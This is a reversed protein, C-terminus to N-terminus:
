LFHKIIISLALALFSTLFSDVIYLEEFIDAFVVLTVKSLVHYSYLFILNTKWPVIYKLVSLLFTNIHM